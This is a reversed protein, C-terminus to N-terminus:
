SSAWFIPAFPRSVYIEGGLRPGGWKRTMLKIVANEKSKARQGRTKSVVGAEGLVGRSRGGRSRDEDAWWAAMCRVLGRRGDAM